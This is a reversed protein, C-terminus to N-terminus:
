GTIGALVARVWGVQRCRGWRPAPGKGKHGCGLRGAAAWGPPGPASAWRHHPPLLRRRVPFAGDPSVEAALRRRGFSRRRCHRGCPLRYGVGPGVFARVAEAESVRPEASSRFGSDKESHSRVGHRRAASARSPRPRSPRPCFPGRIRGTPTPGPVAPGRCPLHALRSPRAASEPGSGLPRAVGATRRESAREPQLAGLSSRPSRSGESTSGALPAVSVRDGERRPRRFSALPSSALRSPPPQPRVASPLASSGRRRWLDM